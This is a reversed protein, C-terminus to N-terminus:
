LLRTHYLRAPPVGQSALYVRPDAPIGLWSELTTGYQLEQDEVKCASEKRPSRPTKWFVPYRSERRNGKDM